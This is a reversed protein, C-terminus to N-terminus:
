AKVSVTNTMKVTGKRYYGDLGATDTLLFDWYRAAASTFLLSETSTMTLKIVHVDTLVTGDDLTVDKINVEVAFGPVEALEGSRSVSKRIQAIYSYGTLDLQVGNVRLFFEHVFDSGRPIIFNRVPAEEINM